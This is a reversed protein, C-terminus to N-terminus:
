WILPREEPAAYMGDGPKVDYARYFSNDASLVANTRAYPLAHVDAMALRLSEPTRKERWTLAYRVYMHRLKEPDNGVIAATCFSAGLDAINETLTQEGNTRTGDPLVYRNYFAIVKAQRNKFEAYDKPTWWNHLCGNEDYQAGGSDFAHTIEHAIINGVGGMNTAEDAQPDYFPPQLYAAPFNISNNLPNYFANATQPMMDDWVDRRVPQGLKQMDFAAELRRLEMVNNILSGGNEPRVISIQDIYEHWADPKGIYINMHDLKKVAQQKTPESMWDLRALRQKYEAMIKDVYSRVDAQWKVDFYRDAYMRGYNEQLLGENLEEAKREESKEAAAGSMQRAFTSSVQEYADNMLRANADLLACIAQEKLVHLNDPTCLSDMRAIAGKDLVYWFSVGNSPGVGAKDLMAEADVQTYLKKLDARELRHISKSPDSRQGITLSHSAIDKQLAFIDAAAKAAQEPSRGYLVLLERLYEQYDKQLAANEPQTMLERGLGSSPGAIWAVYCKNEKPDSSVGTGGLMGGGLGYERGIAAMTEAYEQVSSSEEIQQLSKALNGLGVANRGKKDTICAYLDAARAEDSADPYSARNKVAEQTISTLQQRTLTELDRTPNTGSEDAPIVAKKIWDQNVYLYFDDQPAAAAASEPLPQQMVVDRALVTPMCVMWALGLAVGLKKKMGTM